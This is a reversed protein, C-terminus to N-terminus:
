REFFKRLFDDEGPKNKPAPKNNKPLNNYVPKQIQHNPKGGGGVFNPNRFQQPNNQPQSIVKSKLSKLYMIILKEPAIEIISGLALAVTWELYISSMGLISLLTNVNSSIGLLYSAKWIASFVWDDGVQDNGNGILQIATNCLSLAFAIVMSFDVGFMIIPNKFSLGLVFCLMSVAGLVIAVYPAIAMKNANWSDLFKNNM